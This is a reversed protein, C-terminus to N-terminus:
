RVVVRRALTILTDGPSLEAGKRGTVRIEAIGPYDFAMSVTHGIPGPGRSPCAYRLWTRDYVTIDALIGVVEVETRDVETCAGAWTGATVVFVEGVSVTDPAAIPLTDREFVLLGLEVYSDTGFIDCAALLLAVALAIAASSSGFRM